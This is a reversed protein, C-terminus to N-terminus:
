VALHCVSFKGFNVAKFGAEEFYYAHESNVIYASYRGLDSYDIGFTYKSFSSVGVFAAPYYSFEVTQTYETTPTKDFFLVQPFYIESDVCVSEFGHENVYDVSEEVSQNFLNSIENNYEKFYYNTFSCFSFTMVVIFVVLVTKAAYKVKSAAKGLEWFTYLGYTLLIVTYIHISNIRNINVHTLMVCAVLSCLFGLLVVLEFSFIKKRLKEWAGVALGIFGFAIFPSSIKYFMGYKETSNWILGDNQGWYLNFFNEWNASEKLNSLAIDYDRMVLLKPVSIYSTRIEPIIENNVLVFLMLPLAMVFLVLASLITARWSIKHKSFMVYIGLLLVTTPVVAWTISYSYLAVGYMMASLVWYRNNKLGKVFFFLGFLLFAPALNSELGWRSLMIHWPSIAFVFLGTLAIKKNFMEKLLLYFVPLSICACLLQPMRFTEVSLGFIAIFPIALYSELVNMGSGWSVFYCPNVYGWSDTGYNLLSYAEYGAFAEDQNFGAPISGFEAIRVLCGILIIIAVILIHTYKFKAFSKIM